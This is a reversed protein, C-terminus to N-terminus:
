SATFTATLTISFPPTSRAEKISFKFSTLIAPTPDGMYWAILDDLPPTPIAKGVVGKDFLELDKAVEAPLPIVPGDAAAVPMSFFLAAALAALARRPFSRTMM